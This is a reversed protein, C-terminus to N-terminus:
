ADDRGGQILAMDAFQDDRDRETTTAVLAEKGASLGWPAVIAGDAKPGRPVYCRRLIGPAIWCAAIM